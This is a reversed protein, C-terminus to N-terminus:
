LLVVYDFDTCGYRPSLDLILNAKYLIAWFRTMLDDFKNWCPNTSFLGMSSEIM